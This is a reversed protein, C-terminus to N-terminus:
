AKDHGFPILDSGSINLKEAVESIPKLKARRAIEIDSTM